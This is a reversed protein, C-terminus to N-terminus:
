TLGDFFKWIENAINMTFQAIKGMLEISGGIAPM